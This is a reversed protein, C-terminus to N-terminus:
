IEDLKGFKLEAPMLFQSELEFCSGLAIEIFRHYDKQSKRSSGEAINSFVSVSARNLQSTLGYKEEVPFHKTINYLKKQM